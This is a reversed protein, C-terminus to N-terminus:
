ANRYQRPNRKSQKATFDVADIDLTTLEAILGTGVGADEILVLSANYAEALEVMKSRLNPYNLKARFVDLLYYSGDEYLWTTGVSWDNELGTKSATDWSQFVVSEETQEPLRDYSSM